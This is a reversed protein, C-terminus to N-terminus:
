KGAHVSIQLDACDKGDVNPPFCAPFNHLQQSIKEPVIVGHGHVILWIEAGMPNTLGAATGYGVLAGTPDGVDLSAGYHATGATGVARGDAFMVSADTAPDGIDAAGCKYGGSGHTCKEPHNFIIWWMTDVTGAPLKSTNLRATVGDQDRLLTSYANPVVTGDSVLPTASSGLVPSTTSQPAPTAAALAAPAGLAIVVAGFLVSAALSAICCRNM